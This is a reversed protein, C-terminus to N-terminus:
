GCLATVTLTAAAALAVAVFLLVVPLSDFARGTSEAYRRPLRQMWAVGAAVWVLHAAVFLAAFCLRLTFRGAFIREVAEAAVVGAVALATVIGIALCLLTATVNHRRPEKAGWHARLYGLVGLAGGISLFVIVAAEIEARQEVVAVSLLWSTTLLGLALVPLAVLGGCFLMLRFATTDTWREITSRPM